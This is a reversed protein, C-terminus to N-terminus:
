SQALDIPQYFKVLYEQTFNINLVGSNNTNDATAYWIVYYGVKQPSTASTGSLVALNDNLNKFHFMKKPSYYANIIQNRTSSVPIIKWIGRNMEITRQATMVPTNDSAYVGVYYPQQTSPTETFPLIRVSIKSGLVVWNQYVAPCLQDFAMAQHSTGGSAPPARIDNTTMNYQRLAGGGTTFDVTYSHNYRMRQVMSQPFGSHIPRYVKPKRKFVRRKKRFVPKKKNFKKYPM